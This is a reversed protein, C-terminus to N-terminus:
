SYKFDKFDTQAKEYEEPIGIDIFYGSSVYGLINLTQIHPKFFDEEVSFKGHLGYNEFVSRKLLYMGANILGVSLGVRKEDFQILRGADDLKVTGFRDPNEMKRLIMLGDIDRKYDGVADHLDVDLFSDGNLVLAEDSNTQEFSNVIAGGTGLPDTEVAYKISLSRYRQGFHDSVHQALYGTSLVVESFGYHVLYDLLYELFPRGAVLAMPKPVDDVVSQLRTGFGGAM